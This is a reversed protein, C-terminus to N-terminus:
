YNTKVKELLIIIAVIVVWVSVFGMLTLNNTSIIFLNFITHLTISLIFGILFYRLKIKTHKYYSFAISLGIIGSAAVHLLTAGIFRFNGTIFATTTENLLVPTLIFLTNELASFGLAATIMYIVPDIPENNDKKSLGGKYAAIYKLIEEIIAWIILTFVTTQWDLIFASKIEQSQPFFFNFLTQFVLAFPVALIGYIFTTFIRGAPEPNKKDEQLWYFLWFLAPLVGALLSIVITLTLSM